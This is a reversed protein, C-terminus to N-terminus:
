SVLFTPLKSRRPRRAGPLLVPIVRFEGRSSRVRQDIAIRVQENQWPSQGGAGMFVACASSQNLAEDLAQQLPAGPAMNWQDFWPQVGADRMRIALEEVVAADRPDYSLFIAGPAGNCCASSS